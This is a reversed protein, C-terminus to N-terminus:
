FIVKIYSTDLGLVGGVKATAQYEDLIKIVLKRMPASYGTIIKGEEEAKGWAAEVFKVVEREVDEHKTGHLDLVIM